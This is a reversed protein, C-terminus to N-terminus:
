GSATRPRQTYVRHLLRHLSLRVAGYRQSGAVNNLEWPDRRLDYLERWGRRYEVYLYRATHVAIYPPPGGVRLMNRGLYEIVYTRRWRIKRGHLLPLFSRGDQPRAPKVGATAAITSALDINLVADRNVTPTSTWPTRVILPVHTSEEYPWLKGGLRHEGWLFGNDSTYFIVTRDLEHRQRLTRVITKVSRDLSLLSLLQRRRVDTQFLEAAAKLMGRHWYAWPKDGVNAEDISPSHLPAINELKRQDQPAPIAPLHPAIPAFYLFFPKRAHKIFSVAKGTLVSTSYDRPQDGYHVLRGNQNLDYGYYREMPISDMVHWDDWGPAIRHHGYITYDNLYKGVIATQYGSKHLWTALTSSADFAPLSHPGFNDLVGTHHSYEGQLISARSPGCESTTVHYNTFTVGHGALLRQVDKMVGTGDVREDDSLIVVVNLRRRGARKPSVVHHRTGAAAGGVTLVACACAAFVLRGVV